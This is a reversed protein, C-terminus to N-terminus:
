WTLFLVKALTGDDVIKAKQQLYRRANAQAEQREGYHLHWVSDQQLLQFRSGDASYGEVQQDSHVGIRKRVHSLSWLGVQESPHWTESINFDEPCACLFNSQIKCGGHLSRFTAYVCVFINERQGAAMDKAM